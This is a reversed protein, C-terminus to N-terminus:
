ANPKVEPLESVADHGKQTAQYVKVARGNENEQYEAKIYGKEALAMCHFSTNRQSEGLNEALETIYMDGEGTLLGLIKARTPETIFHLEEITLLHEQQEKTNSKM